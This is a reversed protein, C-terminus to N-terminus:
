SCSLGSGKLADITDKRQDIGRQILEASIIVNGRADLLGTKRFPIAERQAVVEKQYLACLATHTEEAVDELKASQHGLNFALFVMVGILTIALAVIFALGGVVLAQYRGLSRALKATADEGM